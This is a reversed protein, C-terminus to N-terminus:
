LVSGIMIFPSLGICILAEPWCYCLGIIIGGFLAFMSEVQPGVSESSVGNIITTESAMISTLVSAGNEKLDFWGINKQLINAYLDQRIKLTVNESM